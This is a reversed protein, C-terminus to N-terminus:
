STTPWAAGPQLGLEVPEPGVVVGDSLLAAATVLFGDGVRAAVFKKRAAVAARRRDPYFVLLRHLSASTAVWAVLPADPRLRYHDLTLISAVYKTLGTPSAAPSVADSPRTATWREQQM